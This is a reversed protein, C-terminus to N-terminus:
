EAEVMNADLMQQFLESHSKAGVTMLYLENCQSCRAQWGRGKDSSWQSVVLEVYECDCHRYNDALRKIISPDSM